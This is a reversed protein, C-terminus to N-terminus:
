LGPRLLSNAIEVADTLGHVIFSSLEKVMPHWHCNSAGMVTIIPKRWADAWGLEIMSGLSPKTAERLNAIVLDCRMVDFRDRATIARDSALPEHEYAGAESSILLGDDDALFEKDRMPSLVNIHPMLIRQVYERWGRAAEDYTLGAIPGCLYVLSM